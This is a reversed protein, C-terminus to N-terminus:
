LAFCSIQSPFGVWFQMPYTSSYRPIVITQVLIPM